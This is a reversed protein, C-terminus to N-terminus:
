QSFQLLVTVKYQAETIDTEREPALSGREGETIKSHVETARRRKIRNATQWGSHPAIIPQHHSVPFEDGSGRMGGERKERCCFQSGRETGRESNRKVKNRARDM